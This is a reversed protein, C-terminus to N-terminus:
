EARIGYEKIIPWWKSIETKQLVKLAQPTLQDSPPVEFGQGDLKQRIKPDNFTAAVASSLKAIIDRPTGRPAFLGAWYTFNFGPLGAEEMTPIRPAAPVRQEATVGFAKISGSLVQPLAPGTTIFTADIQGAIVDQMAPAAGRYPILHFQTGTQKRFLLALMHPASGVGATGISAKEPNAKLWAIFEKLDNAPETKKAILLMPADPLLAVPEFDKVVDYQVSYILSNAVHTNWSGVILTYGDPAARAVRSTAITGDAGTVNEVIGPQGLSTRFGDGLVRAIIDNLAGAAFPVVLTIPRSPFSEARTSPSISLGAIAGAALSIVQRRHFTPRTM